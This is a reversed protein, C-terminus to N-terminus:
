SAQINNAQTDGYSQYRLRVLDGTKIQINSKIRSVYAGDIVLIGSGANVGAVELEYQTFLIKPNPTSGGGPNIIIVDNVITNYGFGPEFSPCAAVAGVLLYTHSQLNSVSGGKCDQYVSFHVEDGVGISPLINSYDANIILNGASFTVALPSGM